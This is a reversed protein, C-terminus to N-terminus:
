RLDFLKITESNIGIALVLGQPDYTALPWRGVESIYGECEPTRLDWMLITRDLAGTIFVDQVPSKNLTVVKGTHGIFYRIYQNQHLSM